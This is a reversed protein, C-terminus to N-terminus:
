DWFVAIMALTWLVLVVALLVPASVRPMAVCEKPSRM